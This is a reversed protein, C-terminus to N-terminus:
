VGASYIDTRWDVDRLGRAQEPSMYEPTGVLYGDNTTLASRRGSTASTERSVGFDLLKPRVEGDDDLLFVNDPKLDRHVIGAKHVAALGDLIGAAIRVLEELTLTPQRSLRAELSEGALLEMVMFPRGEETTGFDLLDVVNPHRVAAAIRAERLFRDVMTRRDRDERLFLFKVAVLRQLTLDKARWVRAMGGEGILAELEYRGAIVLGEAPGSTSTSGGNMARNWRAGADRRRPGTALSARPSPNPFFAPRTHEGRAGRRARRGDPARAPRRRA